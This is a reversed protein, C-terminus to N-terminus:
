KKNKIKKQHQSVDACVHLESNHCWYQFYQVSNAIRQCFLGLLLNEGERERWDGREERRRAEGGRGRRTKGGEGRGRGEREGGEGRGRGEREGGEGRGRGEREGGRGEREGGEGRGRGEREGGEGREGRMLLFM